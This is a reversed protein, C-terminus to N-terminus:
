IWFGQLCLSPIFINKTILCNKINCLIIIIIIIIIYSVIIRTYSVIKYIYVRMPTTHTLIRLFAGNRVYHHCYIHICVKSRNLTWFLLFLKIKLFFTLFILFNEFRELYNKHFIKFINLFSSFSKLFFKFFKGLILFYKWYTKLLIRHM